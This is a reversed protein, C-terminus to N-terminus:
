RTLTDWVNGLGARYCKIGLKRNNESLNLQFFHRKTLDLIKRSHILM